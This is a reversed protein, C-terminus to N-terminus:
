GLFQSDSLLDASSTAKSRFEQIDICSYVLGSCKIKKLFEEEQINKIGLCECGKLPTEYGTYITKPYFLVSLIVILGLWIILNTNEYFNFIPIVLLKILLTVAIFIVALILIYQIFPNM